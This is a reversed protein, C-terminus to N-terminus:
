PRPSHANGCDPCAPAEIRAIEAKIAECNRSYGPQGTRQALKAKLETILEATDDM